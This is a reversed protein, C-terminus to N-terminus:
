LGREGPLGLNPVGQLRAKGIDANSERRRCLDGTGAIYIVNFWLHDVKCEGM